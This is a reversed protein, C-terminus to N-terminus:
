GGAQNFASTSAAQFNQKYPAAEFRLVGSTDTWIAHGDIYLVNYGGKHFFPFLQADNAADPPNSIPNPIYGQDSMIYKKAPWKVKLSGNVVNDAFTTPTGNGTGTIRCPAIFSM